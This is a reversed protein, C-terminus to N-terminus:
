EREALFLVYRLLGADAALKAFVAAYYQDKLFGISRPGDRLAARALQVLRAPAFPARLARQAARYGREWNPAAADSLDEVQRLRFGAGAFLARRYDPVSEIGPLGWYRYFPKLIMEEQLGSVEESSCWDIWLLPAGPALRTALSELAAPKDPLYCAADMTVAADFPPEDLEAVRMIDHELFRLNGRGRGKLRKRARSLQAPSVDIGTVEAATRDALWEAFAGGGAGLELIRRKRSADLLDFYRRHTRELAADFDDVGEGDRFLALHFFEGWQDYYVGAIAGFMTPVMERYRRRREERSQSM